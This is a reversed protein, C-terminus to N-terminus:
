ALLQPRDAGKEVVIMKVRTTLVPGEDAHIEMQMGVYIGHLKLISGGFTAGALRAPTPGPFFHGGRVVIEGSWRNLVSIEYWSNRTRVWLRQLENMQEIQLGNTWAERGWSDLSAGAPIM